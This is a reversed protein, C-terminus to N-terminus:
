LNINWKSMTVLESRVEEADLAFGAVYTGADNADVSTVILDYQNTNSDIVVVEDEFEEYVGPILFPIIICHVVDYQSVITTCTCYIRIYTCHICLQHHQTSRLEILKLTDLNHKCVM